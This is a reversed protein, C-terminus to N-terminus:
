LKWDEKLIGLLIADRGLGFANRKRGETQAGLRTALNIVHSQETTISARLCGLQSFVYRGCAAVLGRTVGGQEAAVTVEIDPGTYINFVVGAVILGGKERGIATCPPIIDRGIKSSVYEIVRWGTIIV